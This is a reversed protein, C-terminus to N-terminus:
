SRRVRGAAEAVARFAELNEPEYSRDRGVQAGYRVILGTLESDLWRRARERIRDIPGVLWGEDIYEDPVAQVADEFRGAASLEALRDALEPFGRAAFFPRQTASYRVAYEKFPRMARRVDPDVLVDVHGWIEFPRRRQASGARSFGAELIPSMSALMGPAFHSPMWGDGVEAALKTMEPRAAAIMIPIDPTPELDIPMPPTAGGVAPVAYQAGRYDLPEGAFALRLIAVYDRMRAVPSAWKVGAQSEATAASSAGLGVIVRGRGAMHELTMLARAAIAPPRATVQIIRTGLKLRKTQGAILALPTLADSGRGEATFVADYGLEESLRIRELPVSFSRDQWRVETALREVV